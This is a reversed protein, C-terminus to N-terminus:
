FLGFIVFEFVCVCVGVGVCGGWVCVCLVCVCVCFFVPFLCVFCFLLNICLKVKGHVIVKYEKIM